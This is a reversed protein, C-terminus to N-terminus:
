YDHDESFHRATNKPSYVKQWIISAIFNEAGFVEDMLLRLNHVEHDDISVFIVGDDQRLLNRALTLRPYLMSLWSSHYRGSSRPNSTLLGTFDAQRTAELYTNVPDAFNDKYIFDSGTNYPPDIYILKVRNAYGKQLMRLVELNDGVIFLNQTSSEDCGEGPAALLSGSAPKSAARRAGDRGPWSLGYHADGAALEETQGELLERLRELNVRGDSMVEPFLARLTELREQDVPPRDLKEISM